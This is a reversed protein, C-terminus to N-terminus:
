GSKEECEGGLWPDPQIDLLPLESAKKSLEVEHSHVNHVGNRRMIEIAREEEEEDDVRVFVAIGGRNIDHEIADTDAGKTLVKRVIKGIAAGIGGGVASAALAAALAGGSALVPVGAALAGTATLTGFITGTITADEDKTSLRRRPIDPADLVQHADPYTLGLKDIVTNWDAMLDIDNRDVGAEVLETALNELANQSYVAGVVERLRVTEIVEDSCPFGEAEGMKKPNSM